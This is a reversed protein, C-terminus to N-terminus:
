APFPAFPQEAYPDAIGIRALIAAELAEMRDAEFDTEHDWGLLHLAGHVVLHILHHAPPLNQEAAERSVTEAGLAIDGLYAPVGPERAPMDPMPFSLVNTPKDIGRYAANLRRVHGDSTLAVTAAASARSLEPALALAKRATEIAVDLPEFASWDGGERAVDLRLWLPPEAEAAGDFAFSSPAPGDNM